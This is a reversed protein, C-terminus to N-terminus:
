VSFSFVCSINIRIIHYYNSISKSFVNTLKIKLWVNERENMLSDRTYSNRSYCYCGYLQLSTSAHPLFPVGPRWSGGSYLCSGKSKSSLGLKWQVSRWQICVAGRRHLSRVKVMCFLKKLIKNIHTIFFTLLKIKVYHCSLNRLSSFYKNIIM